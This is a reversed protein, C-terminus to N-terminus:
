WIYFRVQLRLCVISLLPAARATSSLRPAYNSGRMYHRRDALCGRFGMWPVRSSQSSLFWKKLKDSVPFPDPIGLFLAKRLRVLTNGGDATSHKEVILRLDSAVSRVAPHQPCSVHTLCPGQQCLAWLGTFYKGCRKGGHCVCFVTIALCVYSSAVQYPWGLPELWKCGQRGGYYQHSWYRWSGTIHYLCTVQSTSARSFSVLM